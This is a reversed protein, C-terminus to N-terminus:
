KMQRGLAKAKPELRSPFDELTRTMDSLIIKVNLSPHCHNPKEHTEPGKLLLDMLAPLRCDVLGLDLANTFAANGCDSM